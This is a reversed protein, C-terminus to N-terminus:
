LEGRMTRHVRDAVDALGVVGHAIRYNQSPGVHLHSPGGHEAEHGPHMDLRWTFVGSTALNFRYTIPTLDPNVTMSVTLVRSGTLEVDFRRIRTTGALTEETTIGNVRVGGMARAWDDLYALADELSRVYGPFM